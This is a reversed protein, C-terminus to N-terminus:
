IELAVQDGVIDLQGLKWGRFVVGNTPYRGGYKTSKWAIHRSVLSSYLQPLWRELSQASRSDIM